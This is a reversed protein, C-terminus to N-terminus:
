ACYLYNASNPYIGLVCDNVTWGTNVLSAATSLSLVVAEKTNVVQFTFYTCKKLSKKGPYNLLVTLKSKLSDNVECM